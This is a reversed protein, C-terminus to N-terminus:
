DVAFWHPHRMALQYYLAPLILLTLVTSATTGFILSTALGAFLPDTYMILTGLIVTAATLLIPRLRVAGALRVAEELPKGQRQYDRIFDIILLANRIVVGALAVTGIASAMSFPIGLLWHGPFIGALGLPISTMAVLPIIFSQYTGVLLLFIFLVAAGLVVAMEGWADLTLRLEGDWLLKYGDLTSPLVPRLRLNDTHLVNGDGLELGDLDPDMALIAYVPASETLEGGVYTVRENDKRLIPRDHHRREVRTLESLPVREGRVNDVYIRDLLTPDIALSRPVKILIPVPTKEGPIHAQSVVRGDMLSQLSHEIASTTVGSLVAKEQDVLIDFRPVDATETDYVDVMMYTREFRERVLAAARRLVEPDPGYIEALVTARTPPGPPAEVFRVDLGPHRRRIPETALRLEEVVQMSETARLKKDVLNISLEAVQPGRRNANGRIQGAFDIVAPIGVYTLYNAVLPHAGIVAGFERAVRDTVEIPTDEPMDLTLNFTNKDDKPMIALMVGGASLPGGVGSPRLFQWAPQLFSALIVVATLLFVAARLRPRELLPGICRFYIRYFPNHEPSPDAVAPVRGRLWRYSAWPVVVYAVVLSLAITVPVNFTIPQFFEGNMGTVISLSSFVLIIALTAMNTPQAIEQTAAVTLARLDAAPPLQYHRYINEITVIGADVIMGLALILAFLSMRNITPGILMDVALTLSLILPVAGSIILGARIGLFPLLVLLVAAIAIGLDAILDNVTDDATAGDNRTTVVRVEDPIFQREMQRVKALVDRAVFVANQNIKKAVSITVAPMEGPTEAREAAGAGFAFRTLSTREVPPGDFVSAVDEVYILQGNHAGLALRRVAEAAQLQGSLHVILNRRDRVTNGVVAAVNSAELMAIGQNMTLGFAELRAPDLEIRIERSRGGHIETVSVEEITSLRETIREALRYLAYDDYVASTLTVNVIPVDDVDIRRVLPLGTGPPLLHQQSMVRQYVRVMADDKDVGVEFQVSIQGLGHAALAFTHDVEEIERLVGEMPAVILQEVESASRGPAQYTIEAGPVVIQPNEERPTLLAAIAGVVLCFLVFVPTLRSTIFNDAIRGALDLRQTM